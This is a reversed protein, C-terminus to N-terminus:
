EQRYPYSSIGCYRQAEQWCCRSDYLQLSYRRCIQMQPRYRLSIRRLHLCSLIGIRYLTHSHRVSLVCLLRKYPALNRLYVQYISHWTAISDRYPSKKLLYMIIFLNNVLSLTVSPCGSLTQSLIESLMSSAKSACSGILRTAHSVHELVPKTSTM